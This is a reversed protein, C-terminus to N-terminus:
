KGAPESVGAAVNHLADLVEITVSGRYLFTVGSNDGMSWPLPEVQWAIEDGPIPALATRQAPTLKVETAGAGDLAIIGIKAGGDPTKTDFDQTDLVRFVKGVLVVAIEPMKM